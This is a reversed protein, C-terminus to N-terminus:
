KGFLEPFAPQDPTKKTPVDEPLNLRKRVADEVALRRRSKALAEKHAATRESTGMDPNTPEDWAREASRNSKSNEM